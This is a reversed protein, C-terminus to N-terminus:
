VFILAVFLTDLKMAGVISDLPFSKIRPILGHSLISAIDARAGGDGLGQLEWCWSGLVGSSRQKAPLSAM